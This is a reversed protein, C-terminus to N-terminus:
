RRAINNSGKLNFIIVETDPHSTDPHSRFDIECIALLERAPSQNCYRYLSCLSM